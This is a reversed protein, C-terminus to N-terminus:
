YGTNIFAYMTGASGTNAGLAFGCANLTGIVGTGAVYTAFTGSSGLGILTYDGVVVSNAPSHVNQFGKTMVWGYSSSPIDVHKITGVCPNIADSVSTAAVSYGSAGTILKVGYGVAATGTGNNYCYIYNEAKHTRRAGIETSPTATVASISENECVPDFYQMVM